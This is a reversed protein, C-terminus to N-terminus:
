PARMRSSHVVTPDSGNCTTVFPQFPSAVSHLVSESHVVMALVDCDTNNGKVAIEVGNLSVMVAGHISTKLM